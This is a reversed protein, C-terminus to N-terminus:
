LDIQAGIEMVQEPPLCFYSSASRANRSLFAFLSESWKGMRGAATAVFTERGIFYTVQRLNVRLGAARVADAILAPLNLTDM